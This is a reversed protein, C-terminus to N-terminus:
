LRPWVDNLFFSILASLFKFPSTFIVWPQFVGEHLHPKTILKRHWKRISSPVNHFIFMSHFTSKWVTWSNLYSKIETPMKLGSVGSKYSQPVAGPRPDNAISDHTLIMWVSKLLYKKNTKKNLNLVENEISWYQSQKYLEM